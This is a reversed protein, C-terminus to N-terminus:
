SPELVNTQKIKASEPPRSPRAADARRLATLCELTAAMDLATFGDLTEISLDAGAAILREVVAAKGTSAAYMLVTAGNDNRNDIDAGAKLLEDVVELRASVCALWLATNGDDNRTELRAGAAILARVIRVNGAYSATMLPTFGKAAVADIRAEPFGRRRLWTQLPASIQAGGAGPQRRSWALYGGELNYVNSFGLECFLKAYEESAYGRHCYILVAKDKAHADVVNSLNAISLNTATGIHSKSFSEAERVDLLLAGGAILHEAEAVTVRRFGVRQNM